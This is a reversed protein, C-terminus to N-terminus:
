APHRQCMPDVPMWDTAFTPDSAPEMGQLQCHLCLGSDLSPWEPDTHGQASSGWLRTSLSCETPSLSPSPPVTADNNQSM